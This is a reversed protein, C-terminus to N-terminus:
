RRSALPRFIGKRSPCGPWPIEKRRGRRGPPIQLAFTRCADLYPEAPFDFNVYELDLHALLACRDWLSQSLDAGNELFPELRDPPAPHFHAASSRKTPMIFFGDRTYETM